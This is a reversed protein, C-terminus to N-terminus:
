ERPSRDLRSQVRDFAVFGTTMGMTFAIRGPSRNENIVGLVLFSTFLQSSTNFFVTSDTTEIGGDVKYQILRLSVKWWGQCFVLIPDLGLPLNTRTRYNGVFDFSFNNDLLLTGDPFLPRTPNRTMWEIRGESKKGSIWTLVAWDVKCEISRLSVM